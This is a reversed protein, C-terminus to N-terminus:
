PRWLAKNTKGRKGTQAVLKARMEGQEEHFRKESGKKDPRGRQKRGNGRKRQDNKQDKAAIEKHEGCKRGNM